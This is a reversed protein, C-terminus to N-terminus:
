QGSRSIVGYVAFIVVVPDIPHRFGMDSHTFYYVIPFCALLIALPFVADRGDHIARGLGCFALFSILSYMVIHPLGIGGAELETSPEVFRDM